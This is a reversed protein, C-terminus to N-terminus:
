LPAALRARGPARGSRAAARAFRVRRFMWPYVHEGTFLDAADVDPPLMREASWRTAGGDAWSAEHLIADIPNRAFATASETDHLFAPSDPPLELPYHIQEAGDSMGLARGVQRFRRWTLRDGGRGLERSLAHRHVDDLTLEAM